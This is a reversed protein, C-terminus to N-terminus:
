ELEPVFFVCNTRKHIEEDKWWSNKTVPAQLSVARLPVYSYRLSTLNKKTGALQSSPATAHCSSFLWNKYKNIYTFCLTYKIHTTTRIADCKLTSYDSYDSICCTTAYLHQMMVDQNENKNCWIEHIKCDMKVEEFFGVELMGALRQSCGGSTSSDVSDGSTSWSCCCSFTEASCFLTDPFGLFIKGLNLMGITTATSFPSFRFDVIFLNQLWRKKQTSLWRFVAQSPTLCTEISVIHPSTM